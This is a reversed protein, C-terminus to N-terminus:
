IIGRDSSRIFELIFERYDSHKCETEIRELAQNRNLGSRFYIQYIKKITKRDQLPFGRRKLGISNIGKFSLPQNAVLIFPPVDQIVKYGAGVFVHEGIRCFQHVLVGGGLSAWNGITVHGGMTTMNALIINDGLICDHAVHVYAMLLCDSGVVTKGLAKTGRNITVCERITTRNGITTITQEGEFKLDQPVEGISCNHYIKCSNGINTGTCITVNNGVYSDNGITVGPEIVSYPGITVNSGLEASFDVLATPHILSSIDPELGILM